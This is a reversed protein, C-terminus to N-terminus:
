KIVVDIQQDKLYKFLQEETEFGLETPEIFSKLTEIESEDFDASTISEGAEAKARLMTMKDAKLKKVKTNRQSWFNSGIRSMTNLGTSTNKKPGFEVSLEGVLPMYRKFYYCKVAVIESATNKWFMQGIERSVKASALEIIAPLITSIKKHKNQELLEVIDVYQKKIAM